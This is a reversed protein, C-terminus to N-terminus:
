GNWPGGSQRGVMVEMLLDPYDTMIGDAGLDLLGGMQAPDDITWAHVQMGAAHAASLFREDLLRIGWHRLPVQLVSAHMRFGRRIRSAAWFLGIEGRATSTAVRGGTARRFARVWSDHYGAVIVRDWANLRRILDTVPGALSMKMELTFFTDPFTTLVEELMPVRLGKDRFPYGSEPGFWFGADLSGLEAASLDWVLGNGDTTRELTHDHLLVIEGDRSLHLDTEFSRFGLDYSEQFAHLTNEPWLGAGGRHSIAIPHEHSFFPHHM